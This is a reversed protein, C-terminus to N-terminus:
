AEVLERQGNGDVGAVGLVEGGRVTLSVGDLAARGDEDRVTVGAVDLVVEGRPARAREARLAVDRGVMLRALGRADTEAVAVTAVDTSDRLVTCRDSAELVEDLKHTILVIGRGAAALERLVGALERWEPPTLVATPEDLVFLEAGCYLLKLIELRQQQGVSLDRVLADPDVPLGHREALERIRRGVREVHSRKLRGVTTVLAMNEAATMDPVLMFHQHVMGIGLGLAERPSRITVPRGDLEITGADPQHLGYLINMLTSKGAGNEGLLAHIEGRRVTLDVADNALVGPFRKTIGRMRLLPAAEAAPAAAPRGTTNAHATM